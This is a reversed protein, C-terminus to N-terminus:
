IKKINHFCRMWSFSWFLRKWLTIRNLALTNQAILADGLVDSKLEVIKSVELVVYLNPKAGVFLFLHFLITEFAQTSSKWHVKFKIPHLNKLLFTITMMMKKEYKKRYKTTGFFYVIKNHTDWCLLASVASTFSISRMWLFIFCLCARDLM